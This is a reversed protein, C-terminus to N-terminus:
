VSVHLGSILFLFFLAKIVFPLLIHSFCVTSGGETSMVFYTLNSVNHSSDYFTVIHGVLGLKLSSKVVYLLLKNIKRDSM